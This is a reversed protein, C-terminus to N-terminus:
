CSTSHQATYSEVREGVQAKCFVANRLCVSLCFVTDHWYGIMTRAAADTISTISNLNKFHRRLSVIPALGRNTMM